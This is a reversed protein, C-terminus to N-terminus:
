SQFSPCDARTARPDGAVAVVVSFGNGDVFVDGVQVPDHVVVFEPDTPSVKIATVSVELPKTGPQLVPDDPTGVYKCVLVKGEPVTPTPKAEAGGVLVTSIAVAVIAVASAARKM